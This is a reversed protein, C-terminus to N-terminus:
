IFSQWAVAKRNFDKKNLGRGEDLYCPIATSVTTTQPGLPVIGFITRDNPQFHDGGTLPYIGTLKSLDVLCGLLLFSFFPFLVVRSLFLVVSQLIRLLEVTHLSM